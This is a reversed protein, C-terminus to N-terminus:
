SNSIIRSHCHIFKEKEIFINEKCVSNSGIFTNEAIKTGGNIIAGTSIHCFNGIEVDHEVIAGTNIICNKGVKAGANVVANHMVITGEDITAYKSVFALPSIIVPFRLKKKSLSFFLNRRASCDKMHGITLFFYPNSKAINDIDNDTGIILYKPLIEKGRNHEVDIIGKIKYLQVQEIVDICSKCHGGGGILYIEKKM